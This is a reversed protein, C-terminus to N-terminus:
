QIVATNKLKYNKLKYKELKKELKEIDQKKLPM